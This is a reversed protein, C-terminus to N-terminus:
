GTEDQAYPLGCYLSDSRIFDPEHIAKQSKHIKYIKLIQETDPVNGDNIQKILFLSSMLASRASKPTAQIGVNGSKINSIFFDLPLPKRTDQTREQLNYSLIEYEQSDNNITYEWGTIQVHYLHSKYKGKHYVPIPEIVYRLGNVIGSVPKKSIAQGCPTQIGSFQNWGNPPWSVGLTEFSDTM